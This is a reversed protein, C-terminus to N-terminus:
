IVGEKFSSGHELVDWYKGYCRAYSGAWSNFQNAALDLTRKFVLYIMFESKDLLLSMQRARVKM